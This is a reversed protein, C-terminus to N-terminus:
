ESCSPQTATQPVLDALVCELMVSSSLNTLCKLGSCIVGQAIGGLEVLSSTLSMSVVKKGDGSSLVCTGVM